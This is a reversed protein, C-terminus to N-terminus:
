RNKLREGANGAIKWQLIAVGVIMVLLPWNNQWAPMTFLFFERIFGLGFSPIIVMIVTIVYLVRALRAEHNNKINFMRSVLFVLYIGFLMAIIVTTTSVGKMNDPHGIRLITYSITVILGSLAAIPAVALLTDRWFFRPSLRNRPLPIFMTWMITPLTVLFINMFSVHRPEFPYLFGFALTSSLLVIEYIIKHFFLTAILEIAQMIRNGLRMGIPLSNFSNDLLVIDAVRRTAVAGAYMAVGLDSKKLALADNVGDGVMGTFSGLRKYTAILREKQEPFVRAFINTKAITADWDKADINQLESGTLVKSYGAIGAIKAVYRVTEPSDGSIVRLSVGRQQLYEITKEVGERLENNLVILGLAQGSGEKLHKLSVDTDNFIAALLVRKGESALLEVRQKQDSSLEAFIGVSEPAGVLVSCTKGEFIVKVGSMKRGSSFALTQLIKYESPAPFGAVIADGTASSSSTEKAVIGVLDSTNKNAKDFLEFNEFSIKDSTLTGTKDVCLVDLLAMAEIAALKQAIVNVHSLRLSGYALLLTSALLLGNPIITVAASTITKFIQVTSEGSLYYVVFILIALGLAGYTLWTIAHTIARQIPTPIPTYRKLTTAMFGIKSKLGIATVRMTANGAVVVSAAYVVSKKPKDIPASEGTFISEDVELGVSSIIEGDTPIEDGLQLRIL